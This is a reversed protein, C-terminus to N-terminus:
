HCIPGGGKSQGGDQSTANSSSATAAGAPADSGPADTILGVGGTGAASKPFHPRAYLDMAGDVGHDIPDVILPIAVIGAATPIWKVVTLRGVTWVVRNILFGPIIVSAATQWLLTDVAEVLASEGDPVTHARWATDTLVYASATAYSANVMWRPALPRFAEGLENAYGLLRVAGERFYDRSM